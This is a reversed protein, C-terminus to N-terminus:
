KKLPSNNNVSSKKIKADTENSLGDLKSRNADAPLSKEPSAEKKMISEIFDMIKLTPKDGDTGLERNLSGHTKDSAAFVEVRTGAKLLIAAFNDAQQMNTSKNGAHILLFPPIRKSPAVHFFPSMDKLVAPDDGFLPKYFRPNIEMLKPIHLAATDLEIVGKIISLNKGSNKLKRGDTAALAVLHAGASHGMLFISDPDGGYESIHDHVFSLADAVDQVNNPHRGYPLLRYNISIFIFDEGTFFPVKNGTSYKDGKKWAGGHVYVMVPVKKTSPPCYIDLSLDATKEGGIKKYPIDLHIKINLKDLNPALLKRMLSNRRSEKKEYYAKAEERTIVNDHNKDILIFLLPRKFEDKTVVGDSNHDSKDFLQDAKSRLLPENEQATANGLTLSLLLFLSLKIEM